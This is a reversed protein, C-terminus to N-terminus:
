NEGGSHEIIEVTAIGKDSVSHIRFTKADGFVLTGVPPLQGGTRSLLYGNLTSYAGDIPLSAGYVDNFDVVPIEGNVIRPGGMAGESGAEAPDDTEDRIEGVIEEIIDELTVIGTVLGTENRVISFHLGLRKMDRLVTGLPTLESIFFPRRVLRTWSGPSGKQIHTILDKVLLLGVINDLSGRTVPYRSHGDAAIFRMIEEQGSTVSLSQIHSRPLMVDRAVLDPFEIVNSLAVGTERDIGGGKTAMEITQELEQENIPRSLERGPGASNVVLKSTLAYMLSVVPRMVTHAASLFRLATPAVQVAWESAWLKPLIEMFVIMTFTYIAILLSVHGPYNTSAWLTMVSSGVINNVNNGILVTTLWRQENRVWISILKADSGGRALLSQTELRGLSTLATESASFVFSFLGCVIVLIIEWDM